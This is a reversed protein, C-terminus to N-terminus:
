MGGVWGPKEIWIFGSDMAACTNLPYNLALPLSPTSGEVARKGEVASDEPKVRPGSAARALNLSAWPDLVHTHCESARSDRLRVCRLCIM